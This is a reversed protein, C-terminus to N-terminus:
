PTQANGQITAQQNNIDLHLYFCSNRGTHCAGGVQNVLCLLADGDCDLSMSVLQQTHGSTEGKVWYNQRSRSWYIMRQTKLTNKIATKNMWAMMLVHKSTADQTIVPILGNSNFAINEFIDDLDVPSQDSKNEISQFFHNLM